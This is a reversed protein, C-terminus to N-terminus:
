RRKERGRELQERISELKSEAIPISDGQEATLKNEERLKRSMAVVLAVQRVPNATFSATRWYMQLLDWQWQKNGPDVAALGEQAVPLWRQQEVTLKNQGNLEDSTAVILKFRKLPSDGFLALRSHSWLLDLRRQVNSPDSRCIRELIAHSDRYNSLADDLKGQAIYADAVLAYSNALDLQWFANQSDGAVLHESYRSNIKTTKSQRSFTERQSLRM